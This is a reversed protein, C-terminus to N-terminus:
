ENSTKEMFECFKWVLHGWHDPDSIQKPMKFHVFIDYIDQRNPVFEGDDNYKGAISRFLCLFHSANSCSISYMKQLAAFKRMLSDMRMKERGFHVSFVKSSSALLISAFAIEFDCMSLDFWDEQMTVPNYKSEKVEETYKNKWSEIGVRYWYHAYSGYPQNRDGTSTSCSSDNITGNITRRWANGNHYVFSDITRTNAMYREQWSEAYKLLENLQLRVLSIMEDLVKVREPEDSVLKGLEDHYAILQSMAVHFVKQDTTLKYTETAGTLYSKYTAWFQDKFTWETAINLRESICKVKFIKNVTTEDFTQVAKLAVEL